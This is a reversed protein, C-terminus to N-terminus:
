NNSPRGTKITPVAALAALYDATALTALLKIGARLLESKKVPAGLKAARQKLEEIVAYELKPITFSDRVLKPKKVKEPKPPKADAKAATTPAAKGVPKASSKTVPKAAVPKRAVRPQAPVAVATPPESVPAPAKTDMTALAPAPVSFTSALATKVAPKRSKTVM